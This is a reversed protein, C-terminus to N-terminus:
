GKKQLYTQWAAESVVVIKDGEGGSPLQEPDQIYYVKFGVEGAEDPIALEIRISGARFFARYIAEDTDGYNKIDHPAVWDAPNFEGPYEVDIREVKGRATVSCPNKLLEKAAEDVYELHLQDAKQFLEICEEQAEPSLKRALNNARELLETRRRCYEEKRGQGEILYSVPLRKTQKTCSVVSQKLLGMLQETHLWTSETMEKDLVAAALRVWNRGTQLDGRRNSNLYVADVHPKIHKNVWPRSTKLMMCVDRISMTHTEQLAALVEAWTRKEEMM